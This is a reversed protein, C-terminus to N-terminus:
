KCKKLQKKNYLILSTNKKTELINNKGYNDYAILMWM